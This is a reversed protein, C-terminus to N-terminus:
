VLSALRMRQRVEQLSRPPGQPPSDSTKIAKQLKRVEKMADKLPDPLASSARPKATSTSPKVADDKADWPHAARFEELWKAKIKGAETGIYGSTKTRGKEKLMAKLKDEDRIVFESFRQGIEKEMTQWDPKQLLIRYPVTVSRGDRSEKRSSSVEFTDDGLYRNEPGDHGLGMTILIRSAEAGKESMQQLRTIFSWHSFPTIPEGTGTVMPAGTDLGLTEAWPMSSYLAQMFTKAARPAQDEGGETHKTLKDIDRLIPGELGTAGGLIMGPAQGLLKGLKKPDGNSLGVMADYLPRFTTRSLPSFLTAATGQVLQKGIDTEYQKTDKNESKFIENFHWRDFFNGLTSFLVSLGPANTYGVAYDGIFISNPQWGVRKLAEAKDFDPTDGSIWPSPRKKRGKDDYGTGMALSLLLGGLALALTSTGSIARGFRSRQYSDLDGHSDIANRHWEKLTAPTTDMFLALFGAPPTYEYAREFGNVMFKTFLLFHSLANYVDMKGTPIHKTLPKLFPLWKDLMLRAKTPDITKVEPLVITSLIHQVFAGLSTHPSAKYNQEAAQARARQALDTRWQDDIRDQMHEITRQHLSTNPILGALIEKRAEAESEAWMAKDKKGRVMATAEAWAKDLTMGHVKALREAALAIFRMNKDANGILGESARLIQFPRATFWVPLGLGARALRSTFDHGFMRLAYKGAWVDRLHMKSLDMRRARFTALDSPFAGVGYGAGDIVGSLGARIMPLNEIIQRIGELFIRTRPFELWGKRAESAGAIEAANGTPTLYRWIESLQAVQTSIGALAAGTQALMLHSHLTATPSVANLAQAFRNMQTEKVQGEKLTNIQVLQDALGEMVERSMMQLGFAQSFAERVADDSMLGNDSMSVLTKVFKSLKGAPMPIRAKKQLGAITKQIIKERSLTWGAIAARKRAEKLMALLQRATEPKLNLKSAGALFTDDDIPPGVKGMYNTALERLLNRRQEKQQLSPTDSFETALKDITTKAQNEYHVSEAAAQRHAKAAERRAIDEEIKRNIAFATESEVSLESLRKQFAAADLEGKLRASVADRLPDWKKDAEPMSAKAVSAAVIRKARADYDPPAPKEEAEETMGDVMAQVKMAVSEVLSPDAHEFKNTLAEVFADYSFGNPNLYHGVYDVFDEVGEQAGGAVWDTFTLSEAAEREQQDDRLKNVLERARDRPRKFPTATSDPTKSAKEPMLQGLIDAIEQEADAIIKAQEEATLKKFSELDDARNAASEGEGPVEAAHRIDDSEANFRESLPIVNGQADRTVPDASKIQSPDDILFETGESSGDGWKLARGDKFDRADEFPSNKALPAEGDWGTLKIFFIKLSDGFGLARAPSDTFYIGEGLQGKSSNYTNIQIGSKSGRYVPGVNYGSKKAAEDVMRQATEMDGSEVAKLYATDQKTNDGNAGTGPTEAAKKLNALTQLQLLRDFKKMAEDLKILLGRTKEDKLGALVRDWWGRKDYEDREAPTMDAKAADLENQISEVLAAKQEPTLNKLLERQATEIDSKIAANTAAPNMDYHDATRSSDKVGRVELERLPRFKDSAAIQLASGAATSMQEERKRLDGPEIDMSSALATDNRLLELMATRLFLNSPMGPLNRGHAGTLYALLDEGFERTFGGSKLAALHALMKRIYQRRLAEPFPLRYFTVPKGDKDKALTRKQKTANTPREGDEPIGSLRREFRDVYGRLATWNAIINHPQMGRALSDQVFKQTWFKGTMDESPSPVSDFSKRLDAALESEKEFRQLNEPDEDPDPPPPDNSGPPIPNFRLSEEGVHSALRALYEQAEKLSSVVGKGVALRRGSTDYTWYQHEDQHIEGQAPGRVADGQEQGVQEDQVGHAASGLRDIEARLKVKEHIARQEEGRLNTSNGHYSYPMGADLHWINGDTTQIITKSAASDDQKVTEVEMIRGRDSVLGAILDGPKLEYALRQNKTRYISPRNWITDGPRRRPVVPARRIDGEDAPKIFPSEKRKPETGIDKANPTPAEGGGLLSNFENLTDNVAAGFLRAANAIMQAQRKAALPVGKVSTMVYEAAQKAANKVAKGTIATLDKATEVKGPEPVPENKSLPAPGSEKRPVPFTPQQMAVDAAEDRGLHLWDLRSGMMEMLRQWEEGYRGGLANRRFTSFNALAREYIAPAVREKLGTGSHLAVMAEAVVTGNAFRIQDETLANKKRKRRFWGRNQKTLVGLHASLNGNLEIPRNKLVELFSRLAERSAFRARRIEDLEAIMGNVRERAPGTIGAKQTAEFLSAGLIAMQRPASNPPPLNFRRRLDAIVADTIHGAQQAREFLGGVDRQYLNQERIGTYLNDMFQLFGHKGYNPDLLWADRMTALTLVHAAHQKMWAQQTERPLAKLLSWVNDPVLSTVQGTRTWEYLPSWSPNAATYLTAVAHSGHFDEVFARFTADTEHRPSLTDGFENPRWPLAPVTRKQSRARDLPNRQDGGRGAAAPGAGAGSLPLRPTKRPGEDGPLKPSLPANHLGETSADPTSTITKAVKPTKKSKREALVGKKKLWERTREVEALLDKRVAEDPISKALDTLHKWLKDTYTRLWEAFEAFKALVQETISGFISAQDLQRKFEVGKTADDGAYAEMAKDIQAETPEAGGNQQRLKQLVNARYARESAKQVEEPIRRWDAAHRDNLMKQTVDGAKLKGGSEEAMMEKTVEDRANHLVEEQVIKRVGKGTLSGDGVMEALRHPDVYLRGGNAGMGSSIGDMFTVGSLAKGWRGLVTELMSGLNRLRNAKKPDTEKAALRNFEAKVDGVAIHRQEAPKPAPAPPEAKATAPKKPTPNATGQAKRTDEALKVLRQEIDTLDRPMAGTNGVRDPHFNEPYLRQFEEVAARRSMFKGESAKGYPLTAIGYPTQYSWFKPSPTFDARPTLHPGGNNQPAVSENESAPLPKTGNDKVTPTEPPPGSEVEAPEVTATQAKGAEAVVSQVEALDKQTAEIYEALAHEGAERAAAAEDLGRRRAKRYQKADIHLMRDQVHAPIANSGKTNRLDELCKTLSKSM